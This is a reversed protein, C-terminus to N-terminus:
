DTFILRLPPLEQAGGFVDGLVADDIPDVKPLDNTM